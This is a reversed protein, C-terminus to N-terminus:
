FRRLLRDLYDLEPQPRFHQGARRRLENLIQRSRQLESAEPLEVDHTDMFRGGSMDRGFPDRRDGSPDNALGTGMGAEVGLQQMFQEAMDALGQQLADVADTQPEIPSEPDGSGLADVAENMSREARSMPMPIEGLAEGMKRMMEGLRRRLAEQAQMDSLMAELEDAGPDGQMPMQLGQGGSRSRQARQFSRDLLRQQEDILNNGDEMLELAQQGRESMKENVMGARLNELMAQLENLMQRAAETAGTQAMERIQELMNRLDQSNMAQDEASIQPVDMGKAMDSMLKESLKEFFDQMAQELADILRNIEADSAGRELAEMLAQQAERLLREAVAYEGEEIRLATDWLLAQVSGVAEDTQDYVLRREAAVLALSVVVDNAFLDPRRSIAHLARAVPRWRKADEALAKRQEVIARAVPHNFIRQPLVFDLSESRGEQGLDDFAIVQLAVTLGAWPHPTLDHYSAVPRQEGRPPPLVLEIPAAALGGDPVRRRLEARVASVGYDDLSLQEIRLVSRETGSPMRTIEVTPPSDPIIELPWAGVTRGDQEVALRTGSEIETTIRYTNVTIGSFPTRAEDILLEPLGTGGSVQALISSGKPVALRRSEPPGAQDAASSTQVTLFVPARGTYSPPNIWLDLSAPIAAAVADFHPRLARDLREPMEGWSAAVVIALVSLLAARLAMPDRAALGPSPPKLRLGALQRAVRTRHARWLARSARDDVGGAQEDMLASVPRHHLGSDRELRRIAAGHDPLRLARASRWLVVVFALAVAVLIAGHLWGPLSPLLDSLALALACGAVGLPPWAALWVREWALTLWALRFRRPSLVANADDGGHQRPNRKTM